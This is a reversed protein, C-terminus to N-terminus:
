YRVLVRKARSYAPLADVGDPGGASNVLVCDARVGDAVRHGRALDRTWVSVVPSGALAVAEHEDDFAAACLVPGPIAAHAGTVLAPELFLGGRRGGGCVIAAGDLLALTRDLAHESILPGVDPDEIAPRVTLARVAAELREIAEDHLAREVLVRPGARLECLLAKVARELDADAFLVAVPGGAPELALPALRRACAAAVAASSAASGAFTVHDVGAHEVLAAGAADGGTAVQLMGRPVGAEEALEALRLPAISAHASPKLIVANGAGLAPAARRASVRLPDAPALIVACVGWPERATYELVGPGHPVVRGQEIAGACGDLDRVAAAVAARAKSLPLGTDRCELEALAPAEGELRRALAALARARTRPERWEREVELARRADAVMEGALEPPTEPIEAFPKQTSPDVAYFTDTVPPLSRGM